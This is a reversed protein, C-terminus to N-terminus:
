IYINERACHSLCYRGLNVGYDWQRGVRVRHVLQVPQDRAPGRLLVLGLGANVDVVDVGERGRVELVAYM